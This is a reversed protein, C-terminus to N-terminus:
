KRIKEKIERSKAEFKVNYHEKLHSKYLSIETEKDRHLQALIRNYKPTLTHEHAIELISAQLEKQRNLLTENTPYAILSAEM